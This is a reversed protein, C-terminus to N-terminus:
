IGGKPDTEQGQPIEKAEPMAQREEDTICKECCDYYRAYGALIGYHTVPETWVNGCRRCQVALDDTQKELRWNTLLRFGKM